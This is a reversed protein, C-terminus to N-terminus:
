DMLPIDTKKQHATSLSVGVDEQLCNAPLLATTRKKAREDCSLLRAPDEKLADTSTLKKLRCMGKKTYNTVIM